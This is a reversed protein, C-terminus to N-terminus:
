SRSSPMQVSQRFTIPVPESFAKPMNQESEGERDVARRSARECHLGALALYMGVLLSRIPLGAPQDSWCVSM